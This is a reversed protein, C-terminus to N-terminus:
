ESDQKAQEQKLEVNKRELQTRERESEERDLHFESKKRDLEAMALDLDARTQELETKKQALEGRVRGLIELNPFLPILVVTILIFAGLASALLDLASMSFITLEPRRRKM